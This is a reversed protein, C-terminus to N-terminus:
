RAISVRGSRRGFRVAEGCDPLYLDLRRGRVRSGTDMVRYTGNYRHGLSAVRIVTGLPLVNPDAAVIGKAVKTGAATTKGMCYATITFSVPKVFPADRRPPQLRPNRACGQAILLLAIAVSSAFSLSTNHMPVGAHCV